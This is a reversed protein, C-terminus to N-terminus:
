LVQDDKKLEENLYDQHVGMWAESGMKEACWRFNEITRLRESKPLDPGDLLSRFLGGAWSYDAAYFAALAAQEAMGWSYVWPEVFLGVPPKKYPLAPSLAYAAQPLHNQWLLRILEMRTEWRQPANEFSVLSRQILGPLIAPMGEPKRVTDVLRLLNLVAVYEEEVYGVGRYQDTRIRYEPYAQEPYGADKWCQALYFQYRACLGLDKETKLAEELLEADKLFKKPDHSRAGDQLPEIWLGPLQSRTVGIGLPSSRMELFEHVVGRYHWRHSNRVLKQRPYRLTSYRCEVDYLASFGDEKITKGLSYDPPYRFVEDADIMLSYCIRENGHEDKAIRDFDDLVATRNHAFHVWPVVKLHLPVSHDMAWQAILDPTGDTSGTDHIILSDILPLCSDLCRTIVQLEDRVIMTLYIVPRKIKPLEAPETTVNKTTM